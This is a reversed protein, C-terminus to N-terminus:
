INKYIKYSYKVKNYYYYTEDYLIEALNGEEDLWGRVVSEGANYACIVVDCNEFKEYLYHLYATGININMEPITLDIEEDTINYLNNIYVATSPLIQMLGIAGRSSVVDSRYNSEAKIISQVFEKEIGYQNSVTIISDCFLIPYCFFMACTYTILFAIFVCLTAIFAWIKNM